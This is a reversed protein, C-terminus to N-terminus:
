RERKITIFGEKVKLSWHASSYDANWKLRTRTMVLSGYYNSPIDTVSDGAVMGSMTATWDNSGSWELITHQM